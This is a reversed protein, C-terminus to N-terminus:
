GVVLTLHDVQPEHRIQRDLFDRQTKTARFARDLRQLVAPQLRQRAAENELHDDGMGAGLHPDDAGSKVTQMMHAVVSALASASETQIATRCRHDVGILRMEPLLINGSRYVIEIPPKDIKGGFGESFRACLRDFLNLLREQCGVVQAVQRRM